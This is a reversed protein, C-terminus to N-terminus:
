EMSTASCAWSRKRRGGSSSCCIPPARAGPGGGPRCTPCHKPTTVCSWCLGWCWATCRCRAPSVLLTSIYGNYLSTHIFHHSAPLMNGFIWFYANGFIWCISCSMHIVHCMSFQCNRFRVHILDFMHFVGGKELFADENTFCGIICSRYINHIFCKLTFCYLM